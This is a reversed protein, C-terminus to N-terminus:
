TTPKGADVQRGIIRGVLDWRFVPSTSLSGPDYGAKHTWRALPNVDEHGVLRGGELHIKHRREVDLLLDALRSYQADTFLSGDPLPKLLPIMECGIYCDNPRRSPFLGLPSRLRWRADWLVLPEKGVLKRWAGSAYAARQLLPIAVHAARDDEDAIAILRGSYGMVYHPFPQGARSYIEVAVDLPDRGEAAAKRPVGSGTTHVCVGFPVPNPRPPGTRLDLIKAALPSIAM